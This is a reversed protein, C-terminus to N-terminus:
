GNLVEMLKAIKRHADATMAPERSGLPDDASVDQEDHEAIATCHEVLYARQEPTLSALVELAPPLKHERLITLAADLQQRIFGIEVRDTRDVEARAPVLADAILALRVILKAREEVLADVRTFTLPGRARLEETSLERLSEVTPLEFAEDLMGSTTKEGWYADFGAAMSLVRLHGALTIAARYSPESVYRDVLDHVRQSIGPRGLRRGHERLRAVRLEDLM